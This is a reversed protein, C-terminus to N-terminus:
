IDINEYPVMHSFMGRVRRQSKYRDLVKNKYKLTKDDLRYRDLVQKDLLRIKSKTYYKGFYSLNQPHIDSVMDHVMKHHMHGYEGDKNHTVIMNWKKMKIITDLDYEINNYSFKWHSRRKLFKDTYGLSILKDDTMKMATEIERERIRNRGCTVCVVLFKKKDLDNFGWLTEDDPHAVIMLNDYDRYDNPNIMSLMKKNNHLNGGLIFLVFIVIVIVFIVILVRKIKDMM